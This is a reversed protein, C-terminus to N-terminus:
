YIAPRQRQAPVGLTHRAATGTTRESGLGDQQQQTVAWNHRLLVTSTCRKTSTSRWCANGQDAALRCWRAAEAFDQAIGTGNKYLLELNCQRCADGQDAALRCM